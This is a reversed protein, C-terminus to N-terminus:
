GLGPLRYGNGDIPATVPIGLARLVTPTIDVSRVAGKLDRSSVGGGAFVIPIKQVTRGIGGHDGAVSYTTNDTLTAVVDSGHDAAATNLLEHAHARFWRAEAAGMRGWRVPTARQFRDGTCIWTATVQPMKAM